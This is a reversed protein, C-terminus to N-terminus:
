SRDSEHAERRQRSIEIALLGAAQPTAAYRKLALTRADGAGNRPPLPDDEWRAQNLWTSPHPIFEPEPLNPDDRFRRAGELIAEVPTTKRVKDWAKRADGKGHRRPYTAWFELFPDLEPLQSLPVPVPANIPVARALTALQETQTNLNNTVAEGHTPLPDGWPHPPPGWPHPRHHLGRSSGTSTPHETAVSTPGPNSRCWGPAM